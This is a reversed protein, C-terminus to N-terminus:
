NADFHKDQLVQLASEVREKDKSDVGDPTQYSFEPLSIDQHELMSFNQGVMNSLQELYEESNECFSELDINLIRDPKIQELQADVERQLYIVQGAVQTWIDKSKLWSYAAPKASGWQARSGLILERMRLLSLATDSPDRRVVIFFAEPLIAALKGAHWNCLLNKHLFPGGYANTMERLILMLSSWDIEGTKADDCNSLESYKLRESWFYGFEHPELLGATRGYDSSYNSASIVTSCLKKALKIGCVPAKWFSAALNSVYGVDFFSTIAQSILTTGSRPVGLIFIIPYQLGQQTFFVKDLAELRDNLVELFHEDAVNKKYADAVEPDKRIM